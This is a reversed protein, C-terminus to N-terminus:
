KKIVIRQTTTIGNINKINVVYLGEEFASTDVSEVNGSKAYVIQGLANYILVECIDNGEINIQNSAPNPFVTVHSSTNEEIGVNDCTFEVSYKNTFVNQNSGFQMMTIGNADKIVGLGNGCGEGTPSIASIQYCGNSPIEVYYKYAHSGQDFHWEDVIENTEMNKLQIYFRDPDSASKVQFYLDGPHSEASEIGISKYNDFPYADENNNIKKVNFNLNSAGQIDFEPMIVEATEGQPLNGTWNYTNLLSNNEDKVEIEMSTVTETGFTKITLTPEVKGSCNQTIISSIKRLAVDYSVNEPELSIRVAQFVEKTSFSQVWAVLHMNEKPFGAMDFTETVTLSEGTLATGNQTPLFDRTVANLESMGQWTKQIHSETLAIMVKLNAATCDGVKNVVATVQCTSGELYNYSLDITFPSTINIRQNYYNLYQPYNTNNPGSGSSGAMGTVGDAKLTPYGSIGYFNARANTESTYFEPTSFASTHVAVPAIAKGEDLLQVIANAAAPCYQCNVGTFVEFLVCERTVNQASLSGLLMFAVVSLLIKKM